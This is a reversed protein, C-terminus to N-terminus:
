MGDGLEGLEMDDPIHEPAASGRSAEPLPELDDGAVQQDDDARMERVEKWAAKVKDGTLAEGFKGKVKFLKGDPAEWLAQLPRGVVDKWHTSIKILEHTLTKSVPQAPKNEDPWPLGGWM